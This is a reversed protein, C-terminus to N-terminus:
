LKESENLGCIWIKEGFHGLIKQLRTGNQESKEMGLKQTGDNATVTGVIKKKSSSLRESYLLGMNAQTRGSGMNFM